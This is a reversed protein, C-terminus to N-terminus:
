KFFEFSIVWLKLSVMRSLLISCVLKFILITIWYIFPSTMTWPYLDLAMFSKLHLLWCRKYDSTVQNEPVHMKWPKRSVKHSWLPKDAEFSQDAPTRFDLISFVQGWLDTILLLPLWSSTLFALNPSPIIGGNGSLVGTWHEQVAVGYSFLKVGNIVILFHYFIFRHGEKRLDSHLSPHELVNCPMSLALAM